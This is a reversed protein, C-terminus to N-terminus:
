RPVVISASGAGLTRNESNVALAQDIDERSAFETQEAWAYLHKTIIARYHIPAAKPRTLHHREPDSLASIAQGLKGAPPVPENGVYTTWNDLIGPTCVLLRGGLTRIRFDGMADLRAPNKLYGVLWQCLASRIGGKTSLAMVTDQNRTKIQFRGERRIPYNDRLWLAHKAIRDQDVFTAVNIRSLFNRAPCDDGIKPIELHLIRDAIAEIDDKSLNEHFSLVGQNNAAVILRIAGIVSTDPAYKKTFPRSKTGLLKRLESTRANGRFDSPLSEDAFVLPCNRVAENFNSFVQEVDTPQTTTWIRSLGHALLGKGADGPGTLMLAVCNVNLDTVLAIWNLLDPELDGSLTKLWTAVEPDFTPPLPRVPCPAETFTRSAADYRAQQARLDLIYDTAVSGYEGMLQALNKRIPEGTQGQTWLEVGASRAPALDRLVANCVDKDSYAKSYCGGPGLLYFLPGRQIIWRKKLEARSCKGIEDAFYDLEGETYPWDRAPDLHAFCEQIRLKAESLEAIEVAVAEAQIHEQARDFKSKVEQEYGPRHPGMVQLSQAFHAVLSDTDANPIAKCIDQALQFLTNDQNGKEAYPEGKVVKHLAEGMEARYIDRSRKWRIALRELRERPIKETARTPNLNVCEVALRSVDLPQGKFIHYHCVAPDTGPPAFPGFYIRGPDKCQPDSPANFRTLLAPWFTPWETLDIPRSLRVCIRVCWLGAPAHKAHSWTTYLISDLGDLRAVVDGLVRTSVKDLDLVGFHVRLVNRALRPMGQQFEAPSFAPLAEKVEHRFREEPAPLLGLAFDDWTMEQVKAIGDKAHMFLSPRIDSM